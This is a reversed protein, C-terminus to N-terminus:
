GKLEARAFSTLRPKRKRGVCCCICSDIRIGRRALNASTSIKDELIKWVTVLTSSQAKIKWFGVYLDREEERRSM